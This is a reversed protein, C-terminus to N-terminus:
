SKLCFEIQLIIGDPIGKGNITFASDMCTVYEQLRPDYM